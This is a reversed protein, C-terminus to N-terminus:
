TFDMNDASVGLKAKISKSEEKWVTAERGRKKRSGEIHAEPSCLNYAM